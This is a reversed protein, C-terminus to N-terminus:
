VERIRIGHVHLMLKRKIIYEPTKYGKTDEVVMNGDKDKYVFDAIYHCPYEIVKGKTIGGRKGVTDPERQAPILEYKVQLQLNTIEKARELLKLEIYRKMEKKSDFRIGDFDCKKSKYKSMIEGVCFLWGTLSPKRPLNKSYKM